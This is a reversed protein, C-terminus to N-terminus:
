PTMRLSVNTPSELFYLTNMGRLLAGGCSNAESVRDRLLAAPYQVGKNCGRESATFTPCM